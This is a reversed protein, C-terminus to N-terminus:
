YKIATDRLKTYVSYLRYFHRNEMEVFNEEVNLYYTKDGIAYEYYYYHLASPKKDPKMNPEHAVLKSKQLIDPLRSSIESLLFDKTQAADNAIHSKTTGDFLVDIPQGQLGVHVTTGMYNNIESIVNHRIVNDKAWGEIKKKQSNSCNRIYSADDSFIQGTEAPNGDLGRVKVTCDDVSRGNPLRKEEDTSVPDDTEEWDCKCNWLTGPQNHQWFPDDKAWVKNWFIQHAERPTASRSPVWRLNPFLRRHDDENFQQWQKGLCLGHLAGCLCQALGDVIGLHHHFVDAVTAARGVHYRTSCM